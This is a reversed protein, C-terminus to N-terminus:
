WVFYRAWIEVMSLMKPCEKHHCCFVDLERSRSCLFQRYTNQLFLCWSQRNSHYGLTPPPTKFNKKQFNAWKFQWFTELREQSIQPLTGPPTPPPACHAGGGGGLVMLVAFSPRNRKFTSEWIPFTRLRRYESAGTGEAAGPAAAGTNWKWSEQAHALRLCPLDDNAKVMGSSSPAKSETDAWRNAVAALMKPHALSGVLYLASKATAFALPVLLRQLYKKTPKLQVVSINHVLTGFSWTGAASSHFSSTKIQIHMASTVEIFMAPPAYLHPTPESTCRRLNSRLWLSAATRHAAASTNGETTCSRRLLWVFAPYGFSKAHYLTGAKRKATTFKDAVRFYTFTASTSALRGVLVLWNCTFGLSEIEPKRCLLNVFLSCFFNFLHLAVAPTQDVSRLVEWCTVFTRM